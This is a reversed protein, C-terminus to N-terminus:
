HLPNKKSRRATSGVKKLPFTPRSAPQPSPRYRITALSCQASITPISRLSPTSLAYALIKLSGVYIDHLAVNKVRCKTFLHEVENITGPNQVVERYGLLTTIGQSGVKFGPGLHHDPDVIKGFGIKKVPKRM